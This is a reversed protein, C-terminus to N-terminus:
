DNNHNMMNFFFLWLLFNRSDESLPASPKDRNKWLDYFIYGFIGIVFVSTGIMAIYDIISM